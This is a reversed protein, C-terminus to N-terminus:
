RDLKLKKNHELQSKFIGILSLGFVIYFAKISSFEIVSSVNNLHSYLISSSVVEVATLVFPYCILTLGSWKALHYNEPKNIFLSIFILSLALTINAFLLVFSAKQVQIDSAGSAQPYVEILELLYSSPNFVGWVPYVMVVGAAVLLLIRIILM